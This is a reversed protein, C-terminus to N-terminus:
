ILEHKKLLSLYTKNKIDQIKLNLAKEFDTNAWTQYVIMMNYPSTKPAPEGTNITKFVIGLEIAELIKEEIGRVQANEGITRELNDILELFTPAKKPKFILNAPKALQSSDIKFMVFDTKYDLDDYVRDIELEGIDEVKGAKYYSLVDEFLRTTFNLKLEHKVSHLWNAGDINKIVISM